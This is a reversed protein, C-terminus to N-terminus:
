IVSRLMRRSPSPLILSFRLIIPTGPPIGLPMERICTHFLESSGVEEIEVHSYALVYNITECSVLDTPLLTRQIYTYSTHLM